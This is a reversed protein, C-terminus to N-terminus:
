RAASRLRIGLCFLGSLVMLGGLGILVQYPMTAFRTVRSVRPDDPLYAVDVKGTELAARYTSGDVDFKRTIPDHQVPLYEVVVTSSQGGRSLARTAADIVRGEVVSSRQDLRSDTRVQIWGFGGLGIGVGLLSLIILAPEFSRSFM